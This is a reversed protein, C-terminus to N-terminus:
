NMVRYSSNVIIVLTAEVESTYRTKVPDSLDLNNLKKIFDKYIVNQKKVDEFPYGSIINECVKIAQAYVFKPAVIDIEGRLRLEEVLTDM